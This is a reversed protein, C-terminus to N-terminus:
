DFPTKNHLTAVPNNRAYEELEDLTFIEQAEAAAKMLDMMEPGLQEAQERATDEITKTM